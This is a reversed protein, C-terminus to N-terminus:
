AMGTMTMAKTTAGTTVEWRNVQIGITTILELFGFKTPTTSITIIFINGSSNSLFVGYGKNNTLIM